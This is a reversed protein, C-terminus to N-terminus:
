QQGIELCDDLNALILTEQTRTEIVYQLNLEQILARDDGFEAAKKAWKSPVRWPDLHVITKAEAGKARHGSSFITQHPNVKDSFLDRIFNAAALNDKAGSAELLVRMSDFRDFVIDRKSESEGAKALEKEKWRELLGWCLDTKIPAKGTAKLLSTALAGGIDRGMIKVPRRSKIFAFALRLLPANNRCLVWCDAAPIDGISWTNVEGGHSDVVGVIGPGNPVDRGKVGVRLPWRLVQGEPLFDMVGFHPVHHRQRKGVAKCVRFSKTLSLSHFKGKGILLSTHRDVGETTGDGMMQALNEMSQADAGRFAYIAQCPDGVAILRTGTLKLLQQHNLPSLDQSEDVIVTHRKTYLGGFLTSMYIQDAFDITGLFAESISTKLVERTFHVAEETLGLGKTFAIEEWTSYDDPVMGRTKAIMGTLGQPVIGMGKAARALALVVSFTDDDKGRDGEIVVKAAKFLKDDDLQLRRGSRAQQWAAHGLANLTKCSFHSPMRSELDEANRKNFAVALPSFHPGIVSSAFVMTSTKAAGAVAEIMLNTEPHEQIFSVIAAQEPTPTHTM